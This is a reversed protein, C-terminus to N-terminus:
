AIIISHFGEPIVVFFSMLMIRCPYAMSDTSQKTYPKNNCTDTIVRKPHTPNTDESSVRQSPCAMPEYLM